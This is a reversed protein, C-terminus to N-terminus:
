EQEKNGRNGRRAGRRPAKERIEQLKKQQEETLVGQMQKKLTERYVARKDSEAEEAAKRAKEHAAKVQAKQEDTLELAKGLRAAARRRSNVANRRRQQMQAKQEDTLSERVKQMAARMIKAKEQRTEAAAAQKRAEAIIAKQEDTMKPREGRDSVNGGRAALARRVKSMQEDTLVEALKEGLQRAKGANDKRLQQLKQQIEKRADSGREAQKMQQVLAQAQQRVNDMEQHHATLIAAVKGATESDLDLQGIAAMLKHGPNARDARASRNQRGERRPKQDQQQDEALALGATAALAVVGIWTMWNRKM